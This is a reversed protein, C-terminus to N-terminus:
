CQTSLVWKNGAGEVASVCFSFGLLRKSDGPQRGPKGSSTLYIVLLVNKGEKKDTM